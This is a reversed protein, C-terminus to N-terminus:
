YSLIYEFRIKSGWPSPEGLSYPPQPYVFNEHLDRQSPVLLVETRTEELASYIQKLMTEFIQHYSDTHADIVKNRSDVFPGVLILLHPRTEQVIDLLDLLPQYNDSDNLTYPGCATYIETCQDKEVPVPSPTPLESYLKSVLLKSGNPNTCEVGVIQGPFLSYSDLKSLDLHISHGGTADMSGQLVVSNSNLHGESDCCIRGLAVQPEVQTLRTDMPEGLDYKETIIDGLRCITEDLVAARERLREYMFRYPSTLTLAKLSIEAPDNSPTWDGPADKSHALVTEGKNSRDSYKLTVQSSNLSPSSQPTLSPSGIANVFRVFNFYKLFLKLNLYFLILYPLDTINISFGCKFKDM